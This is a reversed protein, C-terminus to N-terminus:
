IKSTKKNDGIVTQKKVLCHLQVSVKASQLRKRPVMWHLFLKDDNFWVKENPKEIALSNKLELSQM